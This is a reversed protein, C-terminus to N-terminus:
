MMGMMSPDIQPQKPEDSPEDVVTCETLLVTGAVSAANQLATRAVKTPDIIGAEKMNVVKDTKINYGAWADDGSNCLQDALIQGKVNDFGANVLIQNFPKACAEIVIQAGTTDAKLGNSAYLLATGGGPVIGEEIAAKTAHLADDVRDKKEKMETETNGGVHIIAVGGTFKALREQLKEIEFPTTAKNIQQQLEEIRAEIPEIGGKGDVITTQEKEITVTRAEGFWEWSFKDLKMGKQKDFVVGGTTIAIDELVLKRRDGFDPAKVACVKMTGRMKNVILTALAENDIDEAIILLSKAQASVAELVPLLEKVQTLKQDAILILPNDLTATMNSNNTVFYPSKYGREFQLGEVTELYTEGTRSEEIHVVGELGVKDIATSILKGTEPDNNASITAIQELQEEGSIDESINNKLNNVVKEVTLDIDRKIQVANENNNLANLGAKVMERALLTSTTTGDGAKEATKIAAQKVLQVGLEQNPDSLTISKAVTVGDKTSQPVGQPNSIVVNRGNPGLTSVVADALIDIGEVLNTRADSGLIVRKSM